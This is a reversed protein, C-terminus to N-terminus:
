PVPWIPLYSSPPCPYINLALRGICPLCVQWRGRDRTKWSCVNEARLAIPDTISALPTTISASPQPAPRPASVSHLLPIGLREVLSIETLHSGWPGWDTGRDSPIVLLRRFFATTPVLPSSMQTCTPFPRPPCNRFVHSGLITMATAQFSRPICSHTTTQTSPPCTGSQRTDVTHAPPCKPFSQAWRQEQALLPVQLGM